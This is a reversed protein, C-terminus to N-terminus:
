GMLVFIELSNTFCLPLLRSAITGMLDLVFTTKTEIRSSNLFIVFIHKLARDRLLRKFSLYFSWGNTFTTFTLVLFALNINHISEPKIFRQWGFYISLTASITLTVIGSLLAWFYLERGFGFPHTKDEHQRARNIGVVLLGSSILDSIGELLQSLMIVSGTLITVVLSLIIDLLDVIFSSYVVLSSSIKM